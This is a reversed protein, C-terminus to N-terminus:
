AIRSHRQRALASTAPPSSQDWRKAPGNWRSRVSTTCHGALASALQRGLENGCPGADLHEIHGAVGLVGIAGTVPHDLAFSASRAATVGSPRRCRTRSSKSLPDVM